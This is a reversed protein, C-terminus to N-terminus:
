IESQQYTTHNPDSVNAYTRIVEDYHFHQHCVLIEFNSFKSILRFVPTVNKLFKVGKHRIASKVRGYRWYDIILAETEESPANVEYNM